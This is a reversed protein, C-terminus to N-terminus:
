HKTTEEDPQKQEIQEVLVAAARARLRRIVALNEMLEDDSLDSLASEQVFLEKPVLSAVLKCYEAPREVRMIRVAGPGFKEWDAVLATLLMNTLKNRSGAPRGSGPPPPQGPKFQHEKSM